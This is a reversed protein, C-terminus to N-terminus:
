SNHRPPLYFFGSKALKYNSSTKGLDIAQYGAKSLDYALLTATPGLSIMILWSTDYQKIAGLIDDYKAFANKGPAYIFEHQAINHFLEEEFFFHSNKGVM